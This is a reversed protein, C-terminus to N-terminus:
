KIVVKKNNRIYVGKTTPHGTLRRGDLTYWQGNAMSWQGNVMSNISTPTVAESIWKYHAAFAGTGSLELFFVIAADMHDSDYVFTDNLRYISNEGDSHATRFAEYNGFPVVMDGRSHYFQIRHQPTWGTTVSNDALARHLAQQATVPESPVTAMSDANNLYAFTEPTFMKDLHGAVKGEKPSSFM